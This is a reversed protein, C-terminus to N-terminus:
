KTQKIFAQLLIVTNQVTYCIYLVGLDPSFLSLSTVSICIRSTVKQSFINYSNVNTSLLVNLTNNEYIYQYLSLTSDTNKFRCSTFTKYYGQVRQICSIFQNVFKLYVQMRLGTKDQNFTTILISKLSFFSKIIYLIFYMTASCM